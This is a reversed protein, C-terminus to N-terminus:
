IFNINDKELQIKIRSLQNKVSADLRNFDVDLVFGGIIDPDTLTVFDVEYKEGDILTKLKQMVKKGAPRVTTLKGTIIGSAKKYIEQYSLAIMRAYTERRNESLLNLFRSYSECPVNGGATILLKRKDSSSVTPDKMIRQLSKHTAFSGSLVKMKEFLVGEEKLEAAYAYLAQAYRTSIRGADM